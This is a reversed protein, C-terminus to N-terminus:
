AKKAEIVVQHTTKDSKDYGGFVGQISFGTEKLLLLIERKGIMAVTSAEHTREIMKGKEYIEYILLVELLQERWNPQCAMFRMITSDDQRVRGILRLNNSYAASPLILNFALLGNKSMHRNIAQLCSIQDESGLCHQITSAPIYVFPFKKTLSFDTMDAEILEVRRQVTKPERELKRRAEQLM